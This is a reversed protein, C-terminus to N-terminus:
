FNFNFNEKHVLFDKKLSAYEDYFLKIAKIKDENLQYEINKTLYYLIESEPITNLRFHQIAESVHNVGYELATNFQTVFDHEVLKNSVWCAFVFPLGTFGHWVASLDYRFPYRKEYIFNRDGIIIAGTNAKIVSDEYGPSAQVFKVDHRFHKTFLVQVLAASTRSQYDLYVSKLERLPKEAYLCVTRVEGTASICFRSIIQSQGAEPISVVPLLGIDVKNDILKKACRAPTDVHLDIHNRIDHTILGYHFPISNHYSVVSVRVKKM